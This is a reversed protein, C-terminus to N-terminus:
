LGLPEFLPLKVTEAETSGFVVETCNGFTKPVSPTSSVLSGYLVVYVHSEDADAEPENPTVADFENPLEGGAGNVTVGSVPAGVVVAAHLPPESQEPVYEPETVTMSVELSPEPEPM